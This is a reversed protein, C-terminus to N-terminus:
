YGNAPQSPAQHLIDATSGQANQVPMEKSVFFRVIRTSSLVHDIKIEM